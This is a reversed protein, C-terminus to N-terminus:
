QEPPPAPSHRSFPTFAELPSLRRTRCSPNRTLPFRCVAGNAQSHDPQVKACCVGHRNWFWYLFVSHCSTVYCALTATPTRWPSFVIECLTYWNSRSGTCTQLDFSYAKSPPPPPKRGHPRHSKRHPRPWAPRPRREGGRWTRCGLPPVSCAACFTGGVLGHLFAALPLWPLGGIPRRRCAVSCPTAREM